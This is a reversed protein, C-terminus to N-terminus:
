RGNNEDCFRQNEWKGHSKGVVGCVKGRRFIQQEREVKWVRTEVQWFKTWDVTTAM